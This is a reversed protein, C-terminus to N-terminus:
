KFIKNLFLDFFIRFGGWITQGKNKSYDTYVITVPVEKYRLRKKRIISIIETAHAMGNQRLHIEKAAAATMARLGNHADTLFLGTFANNVFRAFRLLSKRRAPIHSSDSLFRSGLAVDAENNELPSLLAAIDTAKHQGDADFTVICAAGNTLAFEFGTQLAAGQGLNVKHRLIYVPLDSIKDKIEESSGDDVVVLTYQLSILEALVKRIVAQENYAPIIVFVKAPDYHHSMFLIFTFGTSTVRM